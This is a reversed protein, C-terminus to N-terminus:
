RTGSTPLLGSVNGTGNKIEAVRRSARRAEDTGPYREVVDFYYDAAKGFDRLKDYVLGIKFIASPAKESKPYRRVLREYEGIANPLKGTALYCEGRWFVANDAYPHSPYANVFRAFLSLAKDYARNTYSKYAENFEDMETAPVTDTNGDVVGLNDAGLAHFESSPIGKPPTTRESSPTRSGAPSESRNNLVLVPRKERRTSSNDAAAGHSRADEEEFAEEDDAELAYEQTEEPTLRVVKLKPSGDFECKELRKELVLVKDDLATSRTDLNAREARLRAIEKELAAITEKHNDSPKCGIAAFVAMLCIGRSVGRVGKVM